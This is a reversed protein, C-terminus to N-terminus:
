HRTYDDGATFTGGVGPLDYQVFVLEQERGEITEFAEAHVATFREDQCRRAPFSSRCISELTYNDMYEFKCRRLVSSKGLRFVCVEEFVLIM